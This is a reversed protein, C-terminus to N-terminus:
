HLIILHILSHKRIFLIMYLKTDFYLKIGSTLQDQRM